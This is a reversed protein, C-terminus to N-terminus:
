PNDNFHSYRPVPIHAESLVGQGPRIRSPETVGQWKGAVRHISQVNALFGWPSPKVAHGLPQLMSTATDAWAVQEVVLSDPVDQHHFQPAAM